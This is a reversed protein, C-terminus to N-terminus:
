RGAEEDDTLEVLVGDAILEPLADELTQGERARVRAPTLLLDPLRRARPDQPDDTVDTVADCDAQKQSQATTQPHSPDTVSGNGGDTVDTGALEHSPRTVSAREEDTVATKPEAGHNAVETHRQSAQSPHESPEERRTYREWAEELEARAYGKGMGQHPVRVTKPRIRYPKLLRALDRATMGNRKNYAGFPLEEDKNLKEVIDTSLMATISIGFLERLAELLLEGHDAAGLDESGGALMVAAQRARTPWSDGALEAIALLPEWGEELRDSIAGIPEPLRYAGLAEAHEHAWDSLRGSLEELEAHLDGPRLRAVPESELRRELGVVISRDRITDPLRGTDIGALVKCSFVGYHRLEGEKGGRLVFAGRRNGANLVGRLAEARETRAGFVADAEDLLLTPSLEEVAQYIAAETVSAAHLPERCLLALVELLRTKGSRKQPSKVYIYPTVDAVEIAWTHLVYLALAAPEHSSPFRVYRRLLQEIKWLLVGTAWAPRRKDQPREPLPRLEDEALAYLEEVSHGAALYDDVGVKGENEPLYVYHVVAGRQELFAGLQELATHVSRKVMVDSDFVVYVDREDLAIRDWDSTRWCQVGLLAVAVLGRAALADGKAIGETIFLPTIARGIRDRCRPPVDLAISSDAVTEYKVQRGRDADIRPRAPRSQYNVIEGGVGWSPIAIAPVIQQYRAFGLDALESRKEALLYGREAAVDAPIGRAALFDALMTM